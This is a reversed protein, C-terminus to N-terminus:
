GGSIPPIIAIEDGERLELSELLNECYAENIAIIFNNKISDLNYNLCIQESIESASIRRKLVLSTSDVGALDRAKAFFLLKVTVFDESDSENM